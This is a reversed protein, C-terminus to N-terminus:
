RKERMNKLFIIQGLEDEERGEIIQMEKRMGKEWDVRHTKIKDVDVRRRRLEEQAAELDKEAVEVQEKQEEVKKDEIVLKEKVDDLYFKMQEVKDSTTGGDLEDRLQQLKDNRHKRVKDRAAEVEELKKQERELVERKQNVVKEQKEVRRKKVELVEILPYVPMTM